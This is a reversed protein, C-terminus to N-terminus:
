DVGCVRRVDLTGQDAPDTTRWTLTNEDSSWSYQAHARPTTYLYRDSPGPLEVECRSWGPRGVVAISVVRRCPTFLCTERITVHRADSPAPLTQRFGCDRRLDVTGPRILHPSSWQLSTEDDAWAVTTGAGFYLNVAFSGSLECPEEIRRWRGPREVSVRAERQCDWDCGEYVTFTKTASPAHDVLTESELAFANPPLNLIYTASAAAILVVCGLVGLAPILARAGTWPPTDPRRSSLETM